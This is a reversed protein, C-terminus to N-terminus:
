NMSIRYKVVKQETLIASADGRTPIDAGLIMAKGYNHEQEKKCLQQKLHSQILEQDNSKEVWIQCISKGMMIM